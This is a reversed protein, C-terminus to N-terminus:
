DGRWLLTLALLMLVAVGILVFRWERARALGGLVTVLRLVPLAVLVLLGSALVRETGAVGSVNLALGAAVVAATAIAGLRLLRFLLGPRTLVTLASM